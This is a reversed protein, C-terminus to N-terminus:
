LLKAYALFSGALHKSATTSSSAQAFRRGVRGAGSIVLLGLFLHQLVRDGAGAGQGSWETYSAGTSPDVIASSGTFANPSADWGEKFGHIEAGSPLTWGFKLDGTGSADGLSGAILFYVSNADADFELDDDDQLTTSSTVSEDSTKVVRALGLPTGTSPDGIATRLDEIDDQAIATFGDALVLRALPIQYRTATQTPTPDVPSAAPTGQVRGTTIAREADALDLDLVILDHRTNGANNVPVAVTLATDSSGYRQANRTGVFAGGTGVVVARSAPSTPSVELGDGQQLAVGAEGHQAALSAAYLGASVTRDGALVEAFPFSQIAM